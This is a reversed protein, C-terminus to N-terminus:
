IWHNPIAVGYVLAVFAGWVAYKNLDFQTRVIFAGLVLLLYATGKTQWMFGISLVLAISYWFLHNYWAIIGKRKLTMLFASSQIAVVANWGLDSTHRPDLVLHCGLALFQYFAFFLKLEKLNGDNTNRVATVGPTGHVRTVADVALHLALILGVLLLQALREPLLHSYFGFLSVLVARATFLIAHLRYEEYIILPNRVM